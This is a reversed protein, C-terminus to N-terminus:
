ELRPINAPTVNVPMPDVRNSSSVLFKESSCSERSLCISKMWLPDIDREHNATSVRRCTYGFNLQPIAHYM